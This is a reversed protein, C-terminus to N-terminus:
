SPSARSARMYGGEEKKWPVELPLNKGKEELHDPTTSVKEPMDRVSYGDRKWFSKGGKGKWRREDGLSSFWLRETNGSGGAGFSHAVEKRKM